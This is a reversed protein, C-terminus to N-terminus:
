AKAELSHMPVIGRGATQRGYGGDRGQATLSLRAMDNLTAGLRRCRTLALRAAALEGATARLDGEAPSRLLGCDALAQALDAECALLADLRAGALADALAELSVRLRSAAPHPRLGCETSTHM